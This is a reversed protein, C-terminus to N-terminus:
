LVGGFDHLTTMIRLPLTFDYTVMGEVLYYKVSNINLHTRACSLISYDVASLMRLVMIELNYTLGVELLHNKFGIWTVMFCSRNSAM